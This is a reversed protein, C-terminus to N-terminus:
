RRYVMLRNVGFQVTEGHQNTVDFELTLIGRDQKRTERMESVTISAAIQDGTFVPRLFKWDWGLSAIADFQADTQNKLGDVLSLVLLGHAVRGPFGHQKAADDSMHIEFKDGTMEAFSDILEATILIQATQVVDGLSLDSYSYRGAPLMKTM